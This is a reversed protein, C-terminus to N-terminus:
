PWSLNFAENKVIVQTQISPANLTFLSHSVKGTRIKNGPHSYIILPLALLSGIPLYKM